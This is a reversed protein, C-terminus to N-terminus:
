WKGKKALEKQPHAQLYEDYTGNYNILGTKTFSLIRNAVQSILDRDHTVVFVTGPFANLGEALASVSELDLHNTPEDLILIPNKQMMMRAMLLRAAEGGSLAGTAKLSEEGSFLMKGLLGRVHQHGEDKMYAMLWDLATSGPKIEDHYDQPYYSWSAQDTWKITGEDAPIEGMLCRLLTTKGVGNAGVIAVKEGRAVDLNLGKFLTKGDFGKTLDRVVLVERGSPKEQEFRIFPRQINSRKMEQPALREMEKRRSQVQSSRQGAAFRAVFEQLQAIKKAKDRNASEVSQRAQMKHEVMDDYGGPYNIITDYDIDAIHTCVSNLFHRDHSIVILVGKYEWLFDELWHISELDLHNTPEDLLLAEPEGFLAQALLVRFKYDTALTSMLNEHEEDPIGIGRLIEAAELEAAYGNEDAIIVELEGLRNMQEETLDTLECLADREKFASWLADNGMIVTDIIRESDYAFQNQKLVGVKRPKTVTGSNSPELEGSLIKMFTSKGAGNPGTLGYRYGPSFKVSVNDFLTRSGYGKSVENVIIM